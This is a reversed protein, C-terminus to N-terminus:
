KEFYTCFMWATVAASTCRTACFYMWGSLNATTTTPSRFVISGPM